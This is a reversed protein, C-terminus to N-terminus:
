APVEQPRGAGPSSAPGGPAPTQPFKLEDGGDVPALNRIARAENPTLLGGAVQKLLLDIEVEPSPRVFNSYDFEAFKGGPLLPTIRQEFRSTWPSLTYRALGRNQEAVGTGWSTQKDTQGLLHPPVGYWRAIEEIQFSRSELFQADVASLQWQQFKLKRNVFVLAGTNETGATTNRLDSNIQKAEDETVDEDASVLGGVLSGNVFMKHAAKDGSLATGMALRALGIPSVGTIGDLSIGMVQTMSSGDLELKETAGDKGKVNVEFRKGGVAGADAKTTVCLPHVPWLGVLANAGNRLHQLYANGHLLQHVLALEKWEFPTLRDGAPSDLFSATRQRQGDIDVLTRLPFSAISGSILSVARYVASLTMATHESVSPGGNYGGFGLLAAVAPDGISLSRTEVEPKRGRPWFNGM